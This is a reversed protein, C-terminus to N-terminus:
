PNKPKKFDTRYKPNKLAWDMPVLPHKALNEEINEIVRKINEDVDGEDKIYEERIKTIIELTEKSVDKSSLLEIIKNAPVKEISNTKKILEDIVKLNQISGTSIEDNMIKQVTEEVPANKSYYITDETEPVKQEASQKKLIKLINM